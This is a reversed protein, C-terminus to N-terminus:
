LCNIVQEWTIANSPDLRTNWSISKLELIQFAKWIDPRLSKAEFNGLTLYAYIIEFRSESTCELQSACRSPKLYSDWNWIPYFSCPSIEPASTWLDNSQTTYTLQATIKGMCGCVHLVSEENSKAAMENKKKPDWHLCEWQSHISLIVAGGCPHVVRIKVRTLLSTFCFPLCM